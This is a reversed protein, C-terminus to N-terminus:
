LRSSSVASASPAQGLSVMTAKRGVQESFKILANAPDAGPSLVFILPATSSSDKYSGSLDFPPPEVFKQGIKWIVFNTIAPVLKDPRFVRLVLLKQFPSLIKSCPEPLEMKGTSCLHDITSARLATGDRGRFIAIRVLCPHRM